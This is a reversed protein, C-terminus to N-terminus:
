NVYSTIQNNALVDGENGNNLSSYGGEIFVLANIEMVAVIVARVHSWLALTCTVYCVCSGAYNYNWKNSFTTKPHYM